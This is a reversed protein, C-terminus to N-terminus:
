WLSDLIQSLARERLVAKVFWHLRKGCLRTHIFGVESALEKVTLVDKKM